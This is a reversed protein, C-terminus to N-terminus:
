APEENELAAIIDAKKPRFPLKVGREKARAKLEDVTYEELPQTYDLAPETEVLDPHSSLLARALTDDLEVPEEGFDLHYPKAGEHREEPTPEVLITVPNDRTTKVFM